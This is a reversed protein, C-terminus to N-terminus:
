TLATPPWTNFDWFNSVNKKLWSQVLKAKHAPTSVQQFTYPTGSPVFDDLSTSLHVERKRALISMPSGPNTKISIKLETVFTPTCIRDSRPKQEKRKSM